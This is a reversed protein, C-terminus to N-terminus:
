DTVSDFDVRVRLGVRVSEPDIGAVDGIMFVGETEPDKNFLELVDIFKMGIIPDGGIGVCTSRGLGAEALNAVNTPSAMVVSAAEIGEVALIRASVTMLAVSDKYLNPYARSRLSM